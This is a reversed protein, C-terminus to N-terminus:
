LLAPVNDNTAIDDTFACEGFKAECTSFGVGGPMELYLMNAKRNWSWANASLYDTGDDNVM